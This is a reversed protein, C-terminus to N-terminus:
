ADGVLREPDYIRLLDLAWQIKDEVRQGKPQSTSWLELNEPRNDHRVGNIHHVNEGPLLSRGLLWEMVGRHELKHTGGSRTTIRYGKSNLGGRWLPNAAGVRSRQRAGTTERRLCGCSRTRGTTLGGISVRKISGCDCVCLWYAQSMVNKSGPQSKIPGRRISVQDVILRGFRQGTLDKRAKVPTSIEM